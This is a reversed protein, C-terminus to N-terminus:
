DITGIRGEFGNIHGDDFSAIKFRTVAFRDFNGETCSLFYGLNQLATEFHAVEGDGRVANSLLWVKFNVLAEPTKIKVM